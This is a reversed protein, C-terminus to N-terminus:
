VETHVEMEEFPPFFPFRGAIKLVRDIHSDIALPSYGYLLGCIIPTKIASNLKEQMSEFVLIWKSSSILCTYTDKGNPATIKKVLIYMPVLEQRVQIAIYLLKRIVEEKDIDVDIRITGIDAM